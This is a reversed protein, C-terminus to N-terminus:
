RQLATVIQAVRVIQEALMREGHEDDIRFVLWGESRLWSDRERDRAAGAPSRHHWGDAELAIKLDPWAFDLRFKGVRHQQEPRYRFNTLQRMVMNELETGLTWGRSVIFDRRAAAIEGATFGPPPEVGLMGTTSM